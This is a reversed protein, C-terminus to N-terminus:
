HAEVLGTRNGGVDFAELTGRVHAKGGGTVTIKCYRARDDRSESDVESLIGRSEDMWNTVIYDTVNTGVDSVIAATIGIARGSVNVVTCLLRGDPDPHLPPTSLTVGYSSSTVILSFGVVIVAGLALRSFRGNM